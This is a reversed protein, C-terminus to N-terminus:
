DTFGHARVIQAVSVDSEEDCCSFVGLDDGLSESVCGDAGGVVDVSVEEFASVALGGVGELRRSCLRQRLGQSSSALALSRREFESVRGVM